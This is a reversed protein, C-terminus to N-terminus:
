IQAAFQFFATLAKVRSQMRRGRIRRQLLQQSGHIVGQVTDILSCEPKALRAMVGNFRFPQQGIRQQLEAEVV